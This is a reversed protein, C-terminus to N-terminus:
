SLKVLKSLYNNQMFQIIKKVIFSEQLSTDGNNNDELDENKGKRIKSEHITIILSELLSHKFKLIPVVSSLYQVRSRSIAYLSMKASYELSTDNFKFPFQIEDSQM